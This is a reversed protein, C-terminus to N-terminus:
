RGAVREVYKSVNEVDEGELLQAPMQGRGRARGKVIADKVLPAKPRLEDLDPGVQAVAESAALTHCQKCQEAFSERGRKEASTLQLGKPGQKAKAASDISSVVPLGVGFVLVMLAVLVGLARRSGRSQADFMPRGKRGGRIAAIVIVLALLVWFGIFLATAM